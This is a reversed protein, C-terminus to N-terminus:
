SKSKLADGLEKVAQEVAQLHMGLRNHDIKKTHSILKGNQFVDDFVTVTDPGYQYHASNAAQQLHAAAAELDWAADVAEDKGYQEKARYFHWEALAQSARALSADLDASAVTNGANLDSSLSTLEKEAATLKEKTIPMAHSEAYKLWSVAKDLDNAAAKEESRRFHFRASDLAAVSEFRLPLFWDEELVVWGPSDAPKAGKTSTTDAAHASAVCVLAAAGTLCLYKISM